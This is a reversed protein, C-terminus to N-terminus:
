EVVGDFSDGYCKGSFRMTRKMAGERRGEADNCKGEDVVVM